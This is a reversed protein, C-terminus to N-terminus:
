NFIDPLLTRNHVEFYLCTKNTLRLIERLVFRVSKIFLPNILSYIVKGHAQRPHENIIIHDQVFFHSVYYDLNVNKSVTYLGILDSGCTVTFTQYMSSTQNISHRINTEIETPNLMEQILYQANDVDALCSRRVKIEKAYLCDKHFLYLCHEFTSNKRHPAQIFNKVLTNEAVIFPQTIIIYDRDPFLTFAYEVFELSRAEFIEDICFLNIVIANNAEYPIAPLEGLKLNEVESKYDGFNFTRNNAKEEKEAEAEEQERAQRVESDLAPSNKLYGLKALEIDFM